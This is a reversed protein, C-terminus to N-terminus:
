KLSAITVGAGGEGYAGDRYEKVHPHKKLMEKIGAKLVGTGIGHIITVQKLNALSADDLYKDVEYMAEELNFGRLDVESKVAMTKRKMIRGVGTKAIEEQKSEMIELAKFPLNIKMIGVQVLAEKKKSNVEVVTGTQNLTVVNVSQGPLLNEIKKSAVKPMIMDKVNTQLSKLNKQLSQRVQEIEQNRSKSVSERELDRMRKIANETDEKAHYLIRQAEKKADEIIKEKKQIFKQNEKLIEEKLAEAQNKIRTAELRDEESKLRNSEIKQLMNEFDINESDIYEKAKDIIYNQLGLKRSIEFANSKGPVGILLRYTPSLTDVDFEVSANEIGKKSLAYQKLESYHTTAISRTGLSHLDELIAMALAAGEIPDTGAGLEDFLVLSDSTVENQIQVINKMHSSFTSLSQEISQEDGIDAFIKDFIGMQTGFDAPIHLGTQTMLCFLGVTKLTVTKGGTNPGTIVLTHFDNGIKIDNSVVNHIDILPHRGKKINIIKEKLIEPEIAKMSLSLKGKAFIFDLESLVQLNSLIIEYNEGVSLSLMTLIREIEEKEKLKLERLENNMNVIVMPEIFLTAGTSSQDHIIGQVNSRYESKVPIVYRDQRMTIISDQLYKQYTSSTVISNLKSKLSDQKQNIKRRINKLELSADDAIENEAIICREIDDELAKIPEISEVLSEIIPFNSNEEEEKAFKIYNKIGRAAKLVSKVRILSLTDLISGLNAKKAIQNIDYIGDLPVYGRKILLAQAESTQQQAFKVDEYETFFKMNKIYNKGLDSVAKENLKNIIKDYELVRLTKEKM